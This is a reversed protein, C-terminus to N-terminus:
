GREVRLDKNPLVVVRCMESIRSALRDHIKDKIDDLSLNSTIITLREESYRGDIILYLRDLTFDSTKEAGLDDLILCKVNIFKKIIENEGGGITNFTARIEQFLEPVSKFYIFKIFLSFNKNILYIPHLGVTM